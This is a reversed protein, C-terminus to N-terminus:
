RLKSLQRLVHQRIDQVSPVAVMLRSNEIFPRLLEKWAGGCPCPGPAVGLPTVADSFCQSCRWVSKAGSPKGRKALPKGEVEVIDLSFDVVPANSIATGIGYADVVDNLERVEAEDIGGSAFLKVHRFGRLDLEWRVEQLIRRFDGRRSAPTDLRVASLAPGLAEAVNLAEFKEDNFTDILSVRRVEPSVVENFAQTARVTATELDDGAMVLILAHPMTGKAEDGILEAAIVLSTGDVGGVFAAREIMPSIAPHMRRAGFSLITRDGALKRFRAAKTAVGSAQCLFGLLATEYIAFNLYPGELEMVPEWTRFLTGEPMARVTIDLTTLLNSAEAVGALVAWEWNEPFSKAIFEARVRKDIGKARLIEQTRVFYADTVRGAQIDSWDATHLLRRQNSNGM